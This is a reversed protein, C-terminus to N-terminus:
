SARHQPAAAAAAWQRTSNIAFILELVEVRCHVEPVEPLEVLLPIVTSTAEAIVYGLPCVRNALDEIAARADDVGVWAAKSLLAPLEAASGSSDSLEGGDFQM